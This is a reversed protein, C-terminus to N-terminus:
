RAAYVAREFRDFVDLVQKGRLDMAARVIDLAVTAGGATKPAAVVPCRGIVAVAKLTLLQPDGPGVGVGYLTGKAM